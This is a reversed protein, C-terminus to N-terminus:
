DDIADFARVIQAGERTALFSLGTVERGFTEDDFFYGIPMDLAKAVKSLQSASIRNEGAAFKQIQQFTVGTAKGLEQLTVKIAQRRATIRKGIRRDLDTIRGKAM